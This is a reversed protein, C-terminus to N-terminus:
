LGHTSSIYRREIEREAEDTFKGGSDKLYRAIDREVQRLRAAQLASVLRSLLGPSRVGAFPRSGATTAIAM